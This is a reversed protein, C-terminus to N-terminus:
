SRIHDLIVRARSLLPQYDPYLVEASIRLAESDRESGLKLRRDAGISITQSNNCGTASIKASHSSFKGKIRHWGDPDSFYELDRNHTSVITRLQRKSCEELFAWALALQYDSSTGNFLEDFLGLSHITGHDLFDKINELQAKFTSRQHTVDDSVNFNHFVQDAITLYGSEAPIRRAMLSSHVLLGITKLFTSKGAMNPSPLVTITVIQGTAPNREGLSFYGFHQSLQHSFTHLLQQSLKAPLATEVLGAQLAEITLGEQWFLAKYKRKKWDSQGPQIECIISKDILQQIWEPKGILSEFERANFEKGKESDLGHRSLYPHHFKSFNIRLGEEDRPLISPFVGYCDQDTKRIVEAYEFLQAILLLQQAYDSLGMRQAYEASANGPLHCQTKVSEQPMGSQAVFTENLRVQLGLSGPTRASQHITDSFDPHMELHSIVELLLASNTQIQEIDDLLPWSALDHKYEEILLCLKKLAKIFLAHRDHSVRIIDSGQESDSPSSFSFHDGATSYEFECAPIEKAILNQLLVILEADNFPQYEVAKPFAKYSTNKLIQQLHHKENFLGPLTNGEKFYVEFFARGTALCDPERGTLALYRGTVGAPLGALLTEARTKSFRM